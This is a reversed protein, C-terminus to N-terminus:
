PLAFDLHDRSPISWSRTVNGTEPRHSPLDGHTTGQSKAPEQEKKGGERYRAAAGSAVTARHLVWAAAAGLARQTFGSRSAASSASRGDLM